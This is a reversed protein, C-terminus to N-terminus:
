IVDWERCAELPSMGSDMAERVEDQLNHATALRIADVPTLFPLLPKVYQLTANRTIEQKYLHYDFEPYRTAFRRGWRLAETEQLFVKDLVLQSGGNDEQHAVLYFNQKM